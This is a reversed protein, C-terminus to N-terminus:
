LATGGRKSSTLVVDATNLAGNRNIDASANEASITTSLKAKVYDVDEDSVVGDGNADGALVRFVLAASGTSGGDQATVGGVNLQVTQADAVGSLNV